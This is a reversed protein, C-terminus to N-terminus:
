QATDAFEAALINAPELRLPVAHERFATNHLALQFRFALREFLLVRDREKEVLHKTPGCRRVSKRCIPQQCCSADIQAERFIKTKQWGSRYRCAIGKQIAFSVLRSM